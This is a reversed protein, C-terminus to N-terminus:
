IVGVAQLLHLDKRKLGLETVFIEENHEGISPAPRQINCPTLSLKAFAGPYTVTIGLNSHFVNEWFCRQKFQINETIDQMSDVSALLIGDRTARESIEKKTKTLIFEVFPAELRQTEEPTTHLADYDYQWDYQRLWEPINTEEQMWKIMADMSAKIGATGGQVTFNAYGDKCQYIMRRPVGIMTPWTTGVRNTDIGLGEWLDPYFTTMAICAEQASVDVHQGKGLTEREWLAILAATSAEAGANLSAQLQFGIGIPERNPEGTIYLAGSSAWTSLDSDIYSAKPGTQGFPTVSVL